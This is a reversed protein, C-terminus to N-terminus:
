CVTICLTDYALPISAKDIDRYQWSIITQILAKVGDSNSKVGRVTILDIGVEKHTTTNPHLVVGKVIELIRISDRNVEVKPHIHKFTLNSWEKIDLYSISSSVYLSYVKGRVETDAKGYSSPHPQIQIYTIGHLPISVSLCVAIIFSKLSGINM